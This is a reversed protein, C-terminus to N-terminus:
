PLYELKCERNEDIYAIRDYLAYSLISISKELPKKFTMSVDIVGPEGKHSHALNCLDPCRSYGIICCGTKFDELNLYIGTNDSAVGVCDLLNRYLRMYDGTDFDVRFGDLPVNEGDVKFVINSLGFNQFHFPNMKLNSSYATHDVMFLFIQSPLVGRAVSQLDVTEVGRAVLHSSIKSQSFPFKANGSKFLKQHADILDDSPIIKRVVLKLKPNVKIKYNVGSKDTIISFSDQNRIFRLRVEVGPPLFRVTNFFDVHVQTSFYLKKGDKVKEHRKLYGGGESKKNSSEKGSEEKYFFATELHTNKADVNYSLLTELCCKYPYTSTSQDTMETSFFLNLSFLTKLFITIIM